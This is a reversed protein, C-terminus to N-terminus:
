RPHVIRKTLPARLIQDPQRVADRPEPRNFGSTAAEALNPPTFHSSRYSATLSRSLIVRYRQLAGEGREPAPAEALKGPNRDPWATSQPQPHPM